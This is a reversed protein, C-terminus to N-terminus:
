SAFRGNYNKLEDQWWCDRGAKMPVDINLHKYVIVKQIKDTKTLAEDITAKLRIDKPGRNGGDATIVIRCHADEIRDTISQSFGGFIPIYRAWEPV